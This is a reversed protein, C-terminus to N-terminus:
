AQGKGAKLIAMRDLGAKAVEAKAEKQMQAVAWDRFRDSMTYADCPTVSAPLTEDPSKRMVRDEYGACRPCHAKQV